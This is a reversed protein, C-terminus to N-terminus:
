FQYVWINGMNPAKSQYILTTKSNNEIIEIKRPTRNRSLQDIVIFGSEFSIIEVLHLDDLIIPAGTYFDKGKELRKRLEGEKGSFSIPLWIGKKGLYIKNLSTYSSIIIDEKTMREKIIEYGEKFNPQPSGAELSYNDKLSLSPSLILISTIVSFIFPLPKKLPILNFLEIIGYSFLIIAFPLLPFLYRHHFLPFFFSVVSFSSLLILFISFFFLRKKTFLSILFAIIIGISLFLYEETIFSIYRMLSNSFSLTPSGKLLYFVILLFPFVILFSKSKKKILFLIFFVPIFIISIDHSLLSFLLSLFFFFLLKKKKKEEWLTLLYFSLLTFFLVATYGRSQRSWAIHWYSSALLFSSLMATKRNIKKFSILYVLLVSLVGFIVSLIRAQWPYFPSLGFISIVGATLYNYLIGNSYLEGSDLFPLGSEKISLAANITFGEDIWLSDEGLYFVRLLFSFLLLFVLFLIDKYNM